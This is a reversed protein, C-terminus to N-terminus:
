VMQEDFPVQRPTGPVLHGTAQLKEGGLREAPIGELEVKGRARWARLQWMDQAGLFELAEEDAGLVGLVAGQQHRGGGGTQADACDDMELDRIDLPVAPQNADSLALAVLVARGEKRSTQQGFQPGIPLQLTWWRPEKWSLGEVFGHRDARGLSDGRMGFPGRLELVAFADLGQPVATGRMPEFRPAVWTGDLPQESVAREIGGGAGQPDAARGQSMDTAGKIEETDIGARGDRPVFAM